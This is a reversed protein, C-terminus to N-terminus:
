QRREWKEELILGNRKRRALPDRASGVQRLKATGRGIATANGAGENIASNEKRNTLQTWKSFVKGGKTGKKGLKKEEGGRGM